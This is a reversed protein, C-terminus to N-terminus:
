KLKNRRYYFVIILIVIIIIIFLLLLLYNNPEATEDDNSQSEMVEVSVTRSQYGPKSASISYSGSEGPASLAVQGNADTQYNVTGLRVTADQLPSGESYVTITFVENQAPERTSLNVSIIPLIIDPREVITINETVSSYGEKSALIIYTGITSPAVLVAEGNNDTTYTNNAFLIEIGQLPVDNSLASVTFSENAYPKKTPLNLQFSQVPDPEEETFLTAVLIERDDDGTKTFPGISEKIVNSILLGFLLAIIIIPIILHRSKM